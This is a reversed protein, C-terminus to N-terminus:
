EYSHTKKYRNIIMSIEEISTIGEIEGVREGNKSYILSLPIMGQWEPFLTKVFKEQDTSFFFTEFDVGTCGLFSPLVNKVEKEEDISVLIVNTPTKEDKRMKIIEPM